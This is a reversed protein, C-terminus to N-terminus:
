GAGASDAGRCFSRHPVEGDGPDVGVGHDRSDEEAVGHAGSRGRRSDAVAGAREAIEAQRADTVDMIVGGKLMEALGTKLRLTVNSSTSQTNSSANPANNRGSAPNKAGNNKPTSASRSHSGNSKSM